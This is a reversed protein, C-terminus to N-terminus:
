TDETHQKRTAAVIARVVALDREDERDLAARVAPLEACFVCGQRECKAGYTHRLAEALAEPSVPM